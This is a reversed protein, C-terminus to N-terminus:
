GIRMYWFLNNNRANADTNQVGLRHYSAWYNYAVVKIRCNTGATFEIYDGGGAHVTADEITVTTYSDNHINQTGTGGTSAVGTFGTSTGGSPGGPDGNWWTHYFRFNGVYRAGAIFPFRSAQWPDYTQVSWGNGSGIGVTFNTPMILSGGGAFAIPTGGGGVLTVHGHSDVNFDASDFSAVGTSDIRSLGAPTINVHGVSDVLFTSSDFSAVGTSDIPTIGAVRGAASLPNLNVHGHSDVIFSSSDFSALGTSDIPTIGAVRGAGSLPNINVHGFSDVVFDASDFSAIGASDIKINGALRISVHANSDVIFHDVEFSALGISDNTALFNGSDGIGSWISDLMVMVDDSDFYIPTGAAELKTVRADLDHSEVTDLRNDLDTFNGDLEAFTLESGKTLRLVIPM